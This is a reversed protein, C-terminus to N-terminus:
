ESTGSVASPESVAPSAVPVQSTGPLDKFEDDLGQAASSIRAALVADLRPQDPRTWPLRVTFSSGKGLQSDFSIEGGLLRSLEKVISLGLGTGSFERTLNDGRLESTGQRFKEFIIERDEDACGARGARYRHAHM